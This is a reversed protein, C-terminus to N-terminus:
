TAPSRPPATTLADCQRAVGAGHANQYVGELHFDTRKSLTYDTQLMASNWAPSSGNYAGHTFTYAGCVSACM